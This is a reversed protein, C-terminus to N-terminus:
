PGGAPPNFGREPHDDVAGTDLQETEAHQQATRRAAAFGVEREPQDVAARAQDGIVPDLEGDLGAPNPRRRRGPDCTITNLWALKSEYM